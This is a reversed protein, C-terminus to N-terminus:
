GETDVFGAMPIRAESVSSADSWLDPIPAKAVIENVVHRATIGLGRGNAVLFGTGEVSKARLQHEDAVNFTGVMLPVVYSDVKNPRQVSAGVPENM